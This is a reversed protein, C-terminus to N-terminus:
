GNRCYEVHDLPLPGKQELSLEWQAWPGEGGGGM